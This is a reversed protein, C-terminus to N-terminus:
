PMKLKESPISVSDSSESNQLGYLACSLQQEQVSSIEECARVANSKHGTKRCILDEEYGAQFLRTAGTRRLSQNTYRGPLGATITKVVNALSNHGLAMNKYWQGKGGTNFALFLADERAGVPRKSVYLDYLCVICRDHNEDNHYAYVIKGPQGLSKIGGQRCKSVDEKYILCDKNSADIGRKIQANQGYRLKRLESGGRLCFHLGILYILTQCLQKADSHGLIGSDWLINEDQM